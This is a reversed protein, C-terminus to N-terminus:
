EMMKKKKQKNKQKGKKAMPAAPAAPQAAAAPAPKEAKKPVDGRVGEVIIEVRRNPQLCKILAARDKKNARQKECGVVPQTDGMAEITMQEANMGQKVLYDKVFDVRRQSLKQNYDGGGTDNLRDAHGVLQISDIQKWTKLQGIIDDLKQQADTVLGLDFDFLVATILTHKKIIITEGKVPPPAPRCRAADVQMEYALNEAIRAFPEAHGWGAEWKDHGTWILQVELKALKCGICSMDGSQKFEDAIQWLDTRVKESAYPHPTDFGLYKPDADLKSLLLVAQEVSDQVIGTREQEHYEILAMDLWARAKCLTYNNPGLPGFSLKDVKRQLQEIRELDAPDTPRNGEAQAAFGPILLLALLFLKYM